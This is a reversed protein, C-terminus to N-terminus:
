FGTLIIISYNTDHTIIVIIHLHLYHTRLKYANNNAFLTFRLPFKIIINDSHLFLFSFQHKDADVYYPSNLATSLSITTATKIAFM